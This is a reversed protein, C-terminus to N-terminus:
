MDSMSTTGSQTYGAATSISGLINDQVGAVIELLQNYTEQGVYEAGMDVVSKLASLNMKYVGDNDSDDLGLADIVSQYNKGMGKAFKAITEM